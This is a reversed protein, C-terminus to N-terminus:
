TLSVCARARARVHVRVNAIPCPEASFIRSRMERCYAAHVCACLRARARPARAGLVCARVCVCVCVGPEIRAVVQLARVV